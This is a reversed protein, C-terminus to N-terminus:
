AVVQVFDPQQRQCGTDHQCGRGSDYQLPSALASNHAAHGPRHQRHERHTGLRDGHGSDPM